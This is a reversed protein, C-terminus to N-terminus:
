RVDGGAGDGGHDDLARRLSGHAADLRARASAVDLRACAMLIATKANGDAVALLRDAEEDPVGGLEVVLRRARQVLKQSGIRVDVMRNGFVKGVGVMAGLSIANLVRKTATGAKMRTSGALVEPGTELQVVVDAPFTEAVTNCVIAGTAAGRRRAEDLVGLTYPTRGSATVGVVLDRPGADLAALDRAGDDPADEAGERAAWIADPGGALLVPFTEPAAGFTPGLEVADLVALRGSTGAGAYVVRGGSRLARTALDVLRAVQPAARECAQQVARDEEFVLRVLAAADLRDLEASRPNAAETTLAALDEARGPSGRGM